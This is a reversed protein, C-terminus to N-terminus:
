DKKRYHFPLNKLNKVTEPDTTLYHDVGLYLLPKTVATDLILDKHVAEDVHMMKMEGVYLIHDGLTSQSFLDCEYALYACELIPCDVRSGQYFDIGFESPKDIEAGTSRGISRVMPHRTFDVFNISFQKKLDLFKRTARGIGVSVGYLFPDYSLGTNWACPMFNTKNELTVGVIAVNVPYYSFHKQGPTPTITIKRNM